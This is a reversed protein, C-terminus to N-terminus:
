GFWHGDRWAAPLHALGDFQGDDHLLNHSAVPIASKSKPDKARGIVFGDLEFRAPLAGFADLDHAIRRGGASRDHAARLEATM